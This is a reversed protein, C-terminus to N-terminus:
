IQWALQGGRREIYREFAPKLAEVEKRADDTTGVLRKIQDVLLRETMRMERDIDALEAMVESVDPVDPEVYRDVYRPISLNYGNCEVEGADAVHCLRDVDRRMSLCSLVDRVHHARMVNQKGEADHLEDANVVCVSGDGGDSLDLVCVPIGTHLFLKDPLGVVCRFANGRLMSERIRGEASGRFLVGHPLVAVVRRAYALGYQVFAYDGRSKPPVGYRMWSRGVGDWKLSYPPNQVCVGHEVDPLQEVKRVSAFREGPEVKYSEFVEGTLVDKRIVEANMNRMAINLLLAPVTRASFEECRFVANPHAAWLSITLGGTGACADLYRESDGAMGAVLDCVAPPTFDQKLVERDGHEDQFYDTLGDHEMDDSSEAFRALLADRKDDDLMASLLADPLQWAETIGLADHVFERTIPM